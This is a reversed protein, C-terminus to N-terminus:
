YGSQFTSNHAKVMDTFEQNFGNNSIVNSTGSRIRLSSSPIAGWVALDRVEPIIQDHPVGQQLLTAALGAVVPSAMSTGSLVQISGMVGNGLSVVEVGPAFVDVCSGWNSFHAIEDSKDDIAGVTLAYDSGAPSTRCADMNNNGAAVVVLLGADYAAKIASDLVSSKSAGLSLNAIGKTGSTRQHNVAYELGSIVSSLTGQGLRDLVKVSHINVNKAVGFTKSGMVGAVHTGHGVYDVNRFDSSYNPGLVARGEFEPHDVYVGTDIIYGTVGEGEFDGSFYYNEDEYPVVPGEQSLRVLHSPAGEQVAVEDLAQISFDQTIREILPNSAIRDIVDKSFEGAFGEFSGIHFVKKIEKRLHSFSKVRDDQMCLAEVSDPKKLQIIYREKRNFIPISYVYSILYLFFLFVVNSQM